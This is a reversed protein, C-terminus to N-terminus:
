LGSRFLYFRINNKCKGALLRLRTKRRHLDEQHHLFFYCCLLDSKLSFDWKETMAQLLLVSRTDDGEYGDDSDSDDDSWYYYYSELCCYSMMKGVGVDGNNAKKKGMLSLLGIHLNSGERDIRDFCWCRKMQSYYDVNNRMLWNTLHLQRLHLRHLHISYYCCHLRRRKKAKSSWRKWKHFSVKVRGM